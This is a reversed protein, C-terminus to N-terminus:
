AVHTCSPLFRMMTPGKTWACGGAPTGKQARSACGGRQGIAARLSDCARQRRISGPKRQGDDECPGSAMGPFPPAGGQFPDDTSTRLMPTQIGPSIVGVTLILSDM